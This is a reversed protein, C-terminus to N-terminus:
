PHSSEAYEKKSNHIFDTKSESTILIVKGKKEKIVGNEISITIMGLWTKHRGVGAHAILVSNELIAEELIIHSHGGVIIDYEPMSNALLKDDPLGLHSLIILVDSSDKLSLYNRAKELFDLQSIGERNSYALTLGLIAIRRGTSTKIITYDEVSPLNETHIEINAALLPFRAQELAKRTHLEIYEMDHNGLTMADYRLDNMMRIMDSARQGYWKEDMKQRNHIWRESNRVFIDGADLLLVDKYSKRIEHLIDTLEEENDMNFHRDNTHLIIIKETIPYTIDPIRDFDNEPLAIRGAGKEGLVELFCARREPCKITFVGDADTVTSFLEHDPDCDCFLCVKLGSINEGDPNTIRGSLVFSHDVIKKQEAQEKGSFFSCSATFVVLLFLTSISLLPSKKM